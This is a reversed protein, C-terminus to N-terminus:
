REESERRVEEQHERELFSRVYQEIIERHNKPPEFSIHVYEHGRNKNYEVKVLKRLLSVESFHQACNLLYLIEANSVYKELDKITVKYTSMDRALSLAAPSRHKKNVRLSM